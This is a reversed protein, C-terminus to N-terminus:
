PSSEGLLLFSTRGSQVLRIPTLEDRQDFCRVPALARRTRACLLPALAFALVASPEARGELPQCASPRACPPLPPAVHCLTAPPTPWDDDVLSLSLALLGRSVPVRRSKAAMTEREGRCVAARVNACSSISWFISNKGTIGVTIEHPRRLAGCLPWPLWVADAVSTRDYSSACACCAGGIPWAVVSPGPLACRRALLAAQLVRGVLVQELASALLFDRALPVIRVHAM